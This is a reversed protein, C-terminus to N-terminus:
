LLARLRPEPRPYAFVYGPHPYAHRFLCERNLADAGLTKQGQHPHASFGQREAFSPIETVVHQESLAPDNRGRPQRACQRPGLSRSTLTASSSVDASKSGRVGCAHSSSEAAISKIPLSPSVVELSDRCRQRRPGFNMPSIRGNRGQMRTFSEGVRFARVEIVTSGMKSKGDLSRLPQQHRRRAPKESMQPVHVTWAEM